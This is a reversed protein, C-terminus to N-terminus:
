EAVAIEEDTLGYLEYVLHDIEDDTSAIQRELLTREHGTKADQLRKHLQPIWTSTPERQESEKPPSAWAV